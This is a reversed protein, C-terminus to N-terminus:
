SLLLKILASLWHAFAILFGNHKMLPSSLFRRARYRRIRSSLWRSGM